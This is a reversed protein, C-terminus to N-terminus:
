QAPLTSDACSAPRDNEDVETLSLNPAEVAVVPSAEVSVCYPKTPDDPCPQCTVRCSPDMCSSPTYASAFATCVSDADRSPGLASFLVALQGFNMTADLTGSPKADGNPLINTLKLGFVDGTVQLPSPQATQNTVHMRIQAPGIASASGSADLTLKTTPSCLDQTANEASIMDFGSSASSDPTTGEATGLTVDGSAGVSLVFAPAVGFLDMGVQRPMSWDGRALNLYYTNGAWPNPHDKPTTSGCAVLPATALALVARAFARRLM